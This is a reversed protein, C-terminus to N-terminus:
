SWHQATAILAGALLALINVALNHLGFHLGGVAIAYASKAL